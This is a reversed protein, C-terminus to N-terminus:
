EVQDFFSSGFAPYSEIAGISTTQSDESYARAHLRGPKVGAFQGAREDGVAGRHCFFSENFLIKVVSSVKSISGDGNHTLRRM